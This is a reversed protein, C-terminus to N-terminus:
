KYSHAVAMTDGLMVKAIHNPLHLRRIRQSHHFLCRMTFWENDVGMERNIAQFSVFLKFLLPLNERHVEVLREMNKPDDGIVDRVVSVNLAIHRAEDAVIEKFVQGLVPDVADSHTLLTSFAAGELMFCGPIIGGIVDRRRLRDLVVDHFELMAENPSDSPLGLRAREAEFMKHHRLEDELQREGERILAEDTVFEIGLPVATFSIEEGHLFQALMSALAERYARSDLMEPRFETM